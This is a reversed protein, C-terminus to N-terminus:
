RCGSKDVPSLLLPSKETEKYIPDEKKHLKKLSSTVPLCWKRRETFPLFWGGPDPCPSEIEIRRRQSWHTRAGSPWLFCLFMYCVWFGAQPSIHQFVCPSHIQQGKHFPSGKKGSPSNTSKVYDSEELAVVHCPLLVGLFCIIHQRVLGIRQVGSPCPYRWPLFALKPQYLTM